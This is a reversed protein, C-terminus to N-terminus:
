PAGTRFRLGIPLVLMAERAGLLAAIDAILGAASGLICLPYVIRLLRGRFIGALFGAAAYILIAGLLGALPSILAPATVNM